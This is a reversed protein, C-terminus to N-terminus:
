QPLVIRHAPRPRRAPGRALDRAADQERAQPIRGESRCERRRAESQRSGKGRGLAHHSKDPHEAGTCAYSKPRGFKSRQLWGQLGAISNPQITDASKGGGQVFLERPPGLV